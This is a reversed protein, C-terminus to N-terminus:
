RGGAWGLGLDTIKAVPRHDRTRDYNENTHKVARRVISDSEIDIFNARLLADLIDLDDVDVWGRGLRTFVDWVWKRDRESLHQKPLEIIGLQYCRADVDNIRNYAM